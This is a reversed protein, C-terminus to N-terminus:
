TYSGNYPRKGKQRLYKKKVTIFNIVEIWESNEKLSQVFKNCFKRISLPQYNIKVLVLIQITITLQM